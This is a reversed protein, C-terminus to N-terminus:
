VKKLTDSPLEDFLQRYEKAFQGMHWFGHNNAIDSISAFPSNMEVLAKRVSNLRYRNFFRQPSISYLDYFINRLTREDVEAVKCLEPITRKESIDTNVYEIVRKAIQSKKIRNQRTKLSKSSALTLLFLRTVKWKLEHSLLFDVFSGQLCKARFCLSVLLKRVEGVRNADCLSVSGKEIFSEPSPLGTWEAVTSVFSESISVVFPHYGAQSVAQLENNGPFIIISSFPFDLNRWRIPASGKHNVAFTYYGSPATGNQQLLKNFCVESVRFEEDGFFLFDAQFPGRGLQLFELDWDRVSIKFLEFSLFSQSVFFSGM